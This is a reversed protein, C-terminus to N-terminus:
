YDKGKAKNEILKDREDVITLMFAMMKSYAEPNDMIKNYHHGCFMLDGTLGTVKVLAEAACSDCRDLATLIWEKEVVDEAIMMSM